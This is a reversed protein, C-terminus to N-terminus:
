DDDEDFALKRQQWMASFTLYELETLSEDGDVDLEDFLTSLSECNRTEREDLMADANKDFAAFEPEEFVIAEGACITAIDRTAARAAPAMGALLLAAVLVAAQRKCINRDMAHDHLERAM